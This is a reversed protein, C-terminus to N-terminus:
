YAALSKACPSNTIIFNHEDRVTCVYMNVCMCVCESVRVCVSLMIHEASCAYTRVCECECVCVYVCVRVSSLRGLPSRHCSADTSM